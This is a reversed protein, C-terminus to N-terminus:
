MMWCAPVFSGNKSMTPTQKPPPPSQHTVQSAQPEHYRRLRQNAVRLESIWEASGLGGPIGALIEEASQAFARDLAQLAFEIEERHNKAFEGRVPEDALVALRELELYAHETTM